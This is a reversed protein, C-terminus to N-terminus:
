FTIERREIEYIKVEYGRSRIFKCIAGICQTESFKGLFEAIPADVGQADESLLGQCKKVQMNMEKRVEKVYEDTIEINEIGKIASTYWNSVHNVKAYYTWTRPNGKEIDSKYEELAKKLRLHSTDSKTKKTM